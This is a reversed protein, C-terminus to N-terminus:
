RSPGLKSNYSHKLYAINDVLFEVYEPTWILVYTHYESHTTPIEVKSTVQNGNKFNYKESHLSGHIWKPENGVNEMIDKEGSKPWEGYCNDAPMMWIAPWTGKGTPLKAKIEFKGYLFSQKSILRASTYQGNRYAEKMAKIVLKGNEIYSNDVRDTYYQLEDNSWGAEHIERTWNSHNIDGDSEFNEDYILEITGVDYIPADHLAIFYTGAGGSIFRVTNNEVNKTDLWYFNRDSHYKYIKVKNAQEFETNLTVVVEVDNDAANDVIQFIGAYNNQKLKQKIEAHVSNDDINNLGCYFSTGIWTSFSRELEIKYIGIKNFGPINVM